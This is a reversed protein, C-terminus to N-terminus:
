GLHSLFFSFSRDNTTTQATFFTPIGGQSISDWALGLIGDMQSALFAIGAVSDVEGFAFNSAALDGFGINDQSLFGSSTGSGYNLVFKNGNKKYTSSKSQKYTNHTLCVISWCKGSYVWLNSSGTDPIITFTQAPSGIRVDAMYQTDM